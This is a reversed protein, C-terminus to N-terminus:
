GASRTTTASAIRAREEMRAAEDALSRAHELYANRERLLGTLRRRRGLMLGSLAPMLIFLASGGAAAFLYAMDPIGDLSLVVASALVSGAVSLGVVRWAHQVPAIRRAASWVVWPVVAMAWVNDGAVVPVCCLVTLAPHIRRAPVLLAAWVGLLAAMVPHPPPVLPLPALACLLALGALVSEVAVTRRPASRVADRIATAERSIGRWAQTAAIM